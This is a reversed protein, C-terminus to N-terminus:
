CLWDLFLDHNLSHLKIDVNELLKKLFYIFDDYPYYNLQAVDEFYTKKHLKSAILQSYSRDFDAIRNLADRSYTSINEYRENFKNCFVEIEKKEERLHRYGSYYDYFKEYHFKEGYKLIENNYFELFEQVFLREDRRSWRNPDSNPDSLFYARQDTHILIESEDIRSFRQNLDSVSPLGEPISFGSGILFSINRAM